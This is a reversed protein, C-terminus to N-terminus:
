LPTGSLKAKGRLSPKVPAVIRSIVDFLRGPRNVSINSYQKSIEACLLDSANPEGEFQEFLDILEGYTLFVDTHNVHLAILM